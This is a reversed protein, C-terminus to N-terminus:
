LWFTQLMCACCRGDERVQKELNLKCQGEGPLPVWRLSDNQYIQLLCYLSVYYCKHM